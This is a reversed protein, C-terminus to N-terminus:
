LPSRIRLIHAIDELARVTREQLSPAPDPPAQTEEVQAETDDIRALEWGQRKLEVLLYAGTHTPAGRLLSPMNHQRAAVRDADLLAKMQRQGRDRQERGLM